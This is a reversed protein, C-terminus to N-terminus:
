TNCDTMFLGQLCTIPEVAHEACILAETGELVAEETNVPFYKVYKCAHPASNVATLM